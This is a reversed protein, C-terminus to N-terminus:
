WTFILYIVSIFQYKLCPMNKVCDKFFSLLRVHDKEHNDKFQDDVTYLTRGSSVGRSSRM